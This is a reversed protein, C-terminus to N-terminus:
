VTSKTKKEKSGSVCKIGNISVQLQVGGLSDSRVYKRTNPVVQENAYRHKQYKRAAISLRNRVTQM